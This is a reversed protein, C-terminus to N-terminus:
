QKMLNQGDHFFVNSGDPAWMPKALTKNWADIKATMDAVRAPDSEALNKLESMDGSLDFLMIHHGFETKSGDGYVQIDRDKRKSTLKKWIRALPSENDDPGLKITPDAKEAILLKDGGDIMAITEGTRWYLAEHPAKGAALAAALDVGDLEDPKPLGAAALATAAVDLSSTLGDFVEGKASVGPLNAAIFPIRVGGEMLTAKWGSLPGNLCIVRGKMVPKAPCGNDSIFFVITNDYLNRAKLEGVIEGVGDDLASMMAAYTREVGKLNPYRDLYKKTAEFPSHPANYAAYLFFPKDAHRRIFSRAEYTFRDTMYENVRVKETGRRIPTVQRDPGNILQLTRDVVGGKPKGALYTFAGEYVGFFEDFGRATPVMDPSSGLHWKGLAGTVYGVPKLREAITPVNVPLGYGKSKEDQQDGPNFEHGFEAGNRGSLLGARSPACVNSTVHANTFRVGDQALADINPTKYPPNGYSGLGGFGLDDALIVIINPPGDTRSAVPEPLPGQADVPLFSGYYRYASISVTLVILGLAVGGAIWLKKM